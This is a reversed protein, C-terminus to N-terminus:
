LIIKAQIKKLSEIEKNDVKMDQITKPIKNEHGEKLCEAM